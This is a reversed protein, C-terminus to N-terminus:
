ADYKHFFAGGIMAGAAFAVLPVVIRDLTEPKLLLTLSGIMAIASMALGGLFICIFETMRILDM